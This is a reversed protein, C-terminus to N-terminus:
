EVIAESAHNSPPPAARRCHPKEKENGEIQADVGCGAAWGGVVVVVVVV